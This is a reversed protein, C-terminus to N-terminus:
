QTLHVPNGEIRARWTTVDNSSSSFEYKIGWWCSGTLVEPNVGPTCTYNSPIDVRITLWNDNFQQTGSVTTQIECNPRSPVTPNVVPPSTPNGAPSGSFIGPNPAPSSMYSCRSSDINTFDKPVTGPSVPRLYANGTADGADFLEVVLTRGAYQEGVEALYFQATAVGVAPAQINNRMGMTGYAYVAPQTAGSAVAEVAYGNVGDADSSTSSTKVNLLYTEGNAPTISCLDIWSLRFEAQDRLDWHCSGPTQDPTSSGLPTRSSIDLPNTQRYVRYTTTFGATGSFNGRTDGAHTTNTSTTNYAADFVRVTTSTSGSAPMKIVYWYGDTSYMQNPQGTCNTSGTCRASFADGFASVDGPGGIAAWFGPSRDVAIPNPPTNDTATIAASWRCLRNGSAQTGGSPTGVTTWGSTTTPGWWGLSTEYGVRCPRNVPASGPPINSGDHFFPVDDSEAVAWTCQRNGTGSTYRSGSNYTTATEWRGNTSTGHFVNCPANTPARRTHDPPPINTPTGGPLTFLVSYNCRTSGSFGSPDYTTIGTWRGYGQVNVSGVNCGFSQQTEGVQAVAPPRSATNAGTPWNLAYEFSQAPQTRTADGGFYNLPSGLPIPLNYEAEASRTLRQQGSSVVQSFYRAADPDTVVVRLSTPTSGREIDVEFDGPGCDGGDIGNQQLSDCAIATSKGLNPMWVTGALAAADASKQLYSSRSYWSALDVGFAAFTMLPILCLATVVIAVGREGRGRSRTRTTTM